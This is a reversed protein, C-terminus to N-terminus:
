KSAIPWREVISTLFINRYRFPGDGRIYWRPSSAGLTWFAYRGRWTPPRLSWMFTRPQSSPRPNPWYASANSALWISAWSSRSRVPSSRRSIPTAESPWRLRRSSAMAPKRSSPGPRAGSASRRCTATSNASRQLKVSSDLVSPASSIRRMTSRKRARMSSSITSCPPETSLCMPSAVMATNPAGTACSSSGSRATAAASAMWRAMGINDASRPRGAVAGSSLWIPM